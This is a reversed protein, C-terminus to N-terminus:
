FTRVDLLGRAGSARAKGARSAGRQIGPRNGSFYNPIIDGSNGPSIDHLSGVGHKSKEGGFFITFLMGALLLLGIILIILDEKKM